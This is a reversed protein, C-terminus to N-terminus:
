CNMEYKRRRLVGLVIAGFRDDATFIEHCSHTHGLRGM